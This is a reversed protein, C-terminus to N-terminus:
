KQRALFLATQRYVDVTAYAPEDPIDATGASAESANRDAVVPVYVVGDGPEYVRQYKTMKGEDIVSKIVVTARCSRAQAILGDDGELPGSFQSYGIVVYGESRRAALETRLDETLVIKPQASEALWEVAGPSTLETSAQYSKQYGSPGGACAAVLMLLIVSGHRM